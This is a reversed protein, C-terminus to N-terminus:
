QLNVSIKHSFLECFHFRVLLDVSIETGKGTQYVNFEPASIELAM